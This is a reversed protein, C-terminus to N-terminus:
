GVTYPGKALITVSDATATLGGGDITVLYLHNAALAAGSDVSGGGTADVLGPSYQAKCTATGLRLLLECGVKGTLTQGQTLTVVEYDAAEGSVELDNVAKDLEKQFQTMLEPTLKEDLYSRTVLPDSSTGYNSAAVAGIGAAVVATLIFALTLALTRRKM